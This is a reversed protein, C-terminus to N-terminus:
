LSSRTGARSRTLPRETVSELWRRETLLAQRKVWAQRTSLDRDEEAAHIAAGAADIAVWWRVAVEPGIANPPRRAQSISM